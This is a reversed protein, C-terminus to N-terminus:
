ENEEEIDSLLDTIESTSLSRSEYAELVIQMELSLLKTAIECLRTAEETDKIERQIFSQITLSLHNFAGIYWKPELKIVFHTLAIVKRDNIYDEDIPTNFMAKLHSTLTQKLRDISSHHEIIDKLHKISLLREYFANVIESCNNHIIENVKKANIMDENTINLLKLQDQISETVDKVRFVEQKTM